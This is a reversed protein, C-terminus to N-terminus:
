SSSPLNFIQPEVTSSELPATNPTPQQLAALNVVAAQSNLSGKQLHLLM